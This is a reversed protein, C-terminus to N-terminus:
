HITISFNDNIRIDIVLTRYPAFGGFSLVTFYLICLPLSALFIPSRYYTKWSSVTEQPWQLVQQTFPLSAPERRSKVSLAPFRRHVVLIFCYELLLSALNSCAIFLAAFSSSPIDLVSVFLPGVLKCFLDIRRM